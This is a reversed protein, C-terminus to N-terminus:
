AIWRMPYSHLLFYILCASISLYVLSYRHFRSWIKKDGVMRLAILNALSAIVIGNGGVNVGYAIALWNSSFKSLFVAAPVNSIIQSILLSYVFVSGTGVQNLQGM